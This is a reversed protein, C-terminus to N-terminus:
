PTERPSPVLRHFRRGVWLALVLWLGVLGLNVLAFGSVGLTFWVTGAYVTAASFMDGIRVFFSDITPKAKYKEERTLPLYLMHNVTNQLSYDLSNEATKVWRVVALVPLLVAVLYSGFAVVPLVCIAVSVGLTKVLRSVVFLQLVMGLLNVVQFYSAYFGGIFVGTRDRDLLGAAVQAEAGERVIRGLIYEGSANVWNLTLVLLAIGLLYRNQFVVAFPDRDGLGQTSTDETRQPRDTARGSFRDILNFLVLSTGLVLSGALMLPRVGVVHILHGSVFAGFVAGSSAGFAILAFLRKGAEPTYLDNCYAWFQAIVMLSFIGLWLFFAVGVGIGRGSIVYFVPPCVIFFLTVVNILRRRDMRRALVGYLPMIALLMAAQVAMAYSKIEAGGPQALILAERVPKMVYYAALILFVNLALLLVQPGEGDRVDTFLRLSRELLRTPRPATM